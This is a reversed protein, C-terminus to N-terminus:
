HVKSFVFDTNEVEAGAQRSSTRISSDHGRLKRGCRHNTSRGDRGGLPSEAHSLGPDQDEFEEPSCATAFVGLLIVKGKVDGEGKDITCFEGTYVPLGGTMRSQHGRNKLIRKGVM